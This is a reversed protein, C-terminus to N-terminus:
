GDLDVKKVRAAARALDTYTYADQMLLKQRGEDDMCNWLMAKQILARCERIGLGKGPDKLVQVVTGNLPEPLNGPDVSRAQIKRDSPVLIWPGSKQPNTM